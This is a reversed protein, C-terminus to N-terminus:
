FLTLQAPDDKDPTKREPEVYGFVSANDINEPTLPTSLRKPKPKKAPKKAPEANPDSMADLRKELEKIRQRLVNESHAQNYLNTEITRQLQERENSLRATKERLASLETNDVGTAQSAKEKLEAIQQDKRDIIAEISEMHDKLEDVAALEAALREAERRANNAKTNLDAMMKDSLRSKMDLQENLTTLRLIEKRASILAEKDPTILPEGDAPPNSVEQTIQRSIQSVLLAEKQEELSIVQSQLDNIRNLLSQRQRDASLQSRELDSKLRRNEDSLRMNDKQLRLLEDAIDSSMNEPPAFLPAHENEIIDVDDNTVAAFGLAQKIRVLFSM